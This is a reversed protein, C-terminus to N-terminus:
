TVFVTRPVGRDTPWVKEVDALPATQTKIQLNAPVVAQMLGRIARILGELPISGIGSGRLELASSRLAASPLAIDSGSAGGVQVYRIPVADKGAKAAAIILVEASQGWLYDLVVDVGEGGFERKFATELDERPQTLPITVDAGVAGLQQLAIHNRGTAVVKRAGLHKAVQVALRGATGSAGNVLVVEGTKLHARETLAAWSSMGPIAIAAATVDDVGDPLPVCQETNVVAWQAMSGFPAEPLVFYVRRGDDARGVGDMGVVAPLSGPASYHSGSARNKTLHSLAAATVAIRTEGDALIPERFDGYIPARGAEVVIAAKM